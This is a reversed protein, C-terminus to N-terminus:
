RRRDAALRPELMRIEAAADAHGPELDLVQKFHFLAERHRGLMREVRGLYFRAMMPNPSTRAARELTKRTDPAILQKDHAACFRAWALMAAYDVDLPALETAAVLEIVADMVEDRRLAMIGRQFAEDALQAPSKSEVYRTDAGLQETEAPVEAPPTTGIARLAAVEGAAREKRWTSTRTRSAIDEITSPRRPLARGPLGLGAPISISRSPPAPVPEPIASPVAEVIECAGGVVLAYVISQAVRPSIERHRADLEALTAGDRLSEVIPVLDSGLEFPALECTSRLKFRKGIRALDNVLRPESLNMRVGLAIAARVDVDIGQIVPLTIEAEFRYDGRDVSFTRAARQLIARKRLRVVHEVPLRVTEALVDIEDRQPSLAIRKVIANSQSSSTFHSTMAIRVISDAAAPSSAAVVSGNVFAIQYLKGDDARLQLQGTLRRQWITALVSGWPEDGIRGAISTMAVVMEMMFRSVVAGIL